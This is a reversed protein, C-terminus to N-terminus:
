RSKRVFKLTFVINEEEREFVIPRGAATLLQFKLNDLISSRVQIYNLHQFEETVYHGQQRNVARIPIIQLLNTGHGGVVVQNIINTYLFINTPLLMNMNPILPFTKCTEGTAILIGTTLDFLHRDGDITAILGLLGAIEQPIDYVVDPYGCIKLFGVEGNENTGTIDMSLLRSSGRKPLIKNLEPKGEYDVECDTNIQSVIEAV